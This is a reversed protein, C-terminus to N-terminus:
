ILKDKLEQLSDEINNVDVFYLNVIIGDGSEFRIPEHNRMEDNAPYLM